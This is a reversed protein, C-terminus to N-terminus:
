LGTLDVVIRGEAMRVEPVHALTFPVYFSVGELPKVDLLDGAGFNDVNVVKGIETGATDFVQMGILDTVYYEDEDTNPLDGRDVYLKLGKLKEAATRDPVQEAFVLLAGKHARAKSVVLAPKGNADLLPSYELVSIPDDMFSMLKFEGQVGHPAGVQAVLVLNPKTM